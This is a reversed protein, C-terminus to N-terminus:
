FEGYQLFICPEGDQLYLFIPSIPSLVGYQCFSGWEVVFILTGMKYVPLILFGWKTSGMNRAINPFFPAIHPTKNGLTALEIEELKRMLDEHQLVLASRAAQLCLLQQHPPETQQNQPSLCPFESLITILTNLLFIICYHIINFIVSSIM